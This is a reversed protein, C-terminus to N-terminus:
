TLPEGLRNSFTGRTIKYSRTFLNVLFFLNFLNRWAHYTAFERGEEPLSPQPPIPLNLPTLCTLDQFTNVNLLPVGRLM